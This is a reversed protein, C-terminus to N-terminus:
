VYVGYSVGKQLGKEKSDRLSFVKYNARNPISRVSHFVCNYTENKKGKETNQSAIARCNTSKKSYLYM